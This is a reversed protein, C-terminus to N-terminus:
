AAARPRPSWAAAARGPARLCRHRAPPARRSSRRPARRLRGIFHVLQEVVNPDVRSAARRTFTHDDGALVVCTCGRVGRQYRTFDARTVQWDRDGQLVLLPRKWARAAAVGDHAEWDRWYALPMGMVRLMPDDAIAPLLTAAIAAEVPALADRSAGLTHLQDRLIELPPRAPPALAVVGAVQGARAAIEPALMGGLSHGAVTVAGIEPRAQLAHVAAIADDIVETDLTLDNTLTDGYVFTRKDYRLSAIGRHALADALDAFLTTGGITEDRDLPGSGHVLVVAPFPGDGDPLTLTAPLEYPPSGITLAVVVLGLM